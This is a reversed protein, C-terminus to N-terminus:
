LIGDDYAGNDDGEELARSVFKMNEESASFNRGIAVFVTNTDSQVAAEFCMAPAIQRLNQDYFTAEQNRALDKSFSIVPAPDSPDVMIHVEKFGGRADRGRFVIPIKSTGERPYRPDAQAHAEQEPRANSPKRGKM